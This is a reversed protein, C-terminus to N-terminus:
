VFIRNEHYCESITRTMRELTNDHIHRIKLVTERLETDEISEIEKLPVERCPAEIQHYRRIRKGGGAKKFLKETREVINRWRQANAKRHQDQLWLIDELMDPDTIMELVPGIIINTVAESDELLEVEDPKLDMEQLTQIIENLSAM